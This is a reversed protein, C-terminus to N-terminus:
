SESYINEEGQGGIIVEEQQGNMSARTITNDITDSWYIKREVPDYGIGLPAALYGLALASLAPPHTTM